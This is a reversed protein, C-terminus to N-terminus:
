GSADRLETKLNLGAYKINESNLEVAALVVDLDNQLRYSVFQIADGLNGKTYKQAKIATLAIEKDDRIRESAFELASGDKQVAALAVNRNDRMKESGFKLAYGNNRVAALVIKEDDKLEEDASALASGDKSVITFVIEEDDRFEEPISSVRSDRKLEELFAARKKGYDIAENHLIDQGSIITRQSQTLKLLKAKKEARDFDEAAEKKVFNPEHKIEHGIEDIRGHVSPDYEREISSM